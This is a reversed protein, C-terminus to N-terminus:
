TSPHNQVRNGSEGIERNRRWVVWVAPIHGVLVAITVVSLFYFVFGALSKGTHWRSADAIILALVRRILATLCLAYMAALTAILLPSSVRRWPLLLLLALVTANAIQWNFIYAWSAGTVVIRRVIEAEWGLAVLAWVIGLGRVILVWKPIRPFM